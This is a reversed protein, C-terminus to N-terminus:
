LNTTVSIVEARAERMASRKIYIRIGQLGKRLLGYAEDLHGPRSSFGNVGRGEFFANAM